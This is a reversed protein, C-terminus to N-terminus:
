PGSRMFSVAAGVIGLPRRANRAMVPVMLRSLKVAQRPNRLVPLTSATDAVLTSGTLCFLPPALRYLQTSM